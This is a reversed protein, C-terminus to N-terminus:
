PCSSEERHADVTSPLAPLFPVLAAYLRDHVVEPTDDGVEVSVLRPDRRELEGYAADVSTLFTSQEPSPRTGERQAWRDIAVEISPRLWVAVDAQGGAMEVLGRLWGIGEDLAMDHYRMLSALSYSLMTHAGRDEIVIDHDCSAPHIRTAIINARIAAALFSDTVVDRHRMFPDGSSSFLDFLADGLEDTGLTALDPLYAVQYGHTSLSQRLLRGQTTKGSGSLGELSILVHPETSHRAGSPDQM